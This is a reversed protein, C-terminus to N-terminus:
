ESFFSKWQCVNEFGNIKTKTPESPNVRFQPISNWCHKTSLKFQTLSKLQHMTPYQSFALIHSATNIIHQPYQKFDQPNVTIWKKRQDCSSMSDLSFNWASCSSSIATLSLSASAFRARLSSDLWTASSSLSQCTQTYKHVNRYRKTSQSVQSKTKHLVIWIRNM